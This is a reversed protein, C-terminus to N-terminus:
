LDLEKMPPCKNPHLVPVFTLSNGTKRDTLTLEGDVIKLKTAAALTAHFGREFEMSPEDCAMMTSIIDSIKLRGKETSYSGGYVNCGSRGGLKGAKNINLTVENQDIPYPVADTFNYATLRWEGQPLTQSFAPVLMALLLLNVAFTKFLIKRM